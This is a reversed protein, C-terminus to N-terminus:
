EFRADQRTDPLEGPVDGGVDNLPSAYQLSLCQVVQDGPHDTRCAGTRFINGSEKPPPRAAPMKPQGATTLPALTQPCLDDTAIAPAVALRAEAGSRATLRSKSSRQRVQRTTCPGDGEVRGKPRM